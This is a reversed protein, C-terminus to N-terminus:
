DCREIGGCAALLDAVGAPGEVTTINWTFAILDRWFGDPAFLAAAASLDDAALAAEFQALWADIRQQATSM